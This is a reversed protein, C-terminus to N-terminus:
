LQERGHNIEAVAKLYLEDNLPLYHWEMKDQMFSVGRGKVTHAYIIGVGFEPSECAAEIEYFNHGDIERVDVGFGRIRNALDGMGAVDSTRGFGQLNNGDIIVTLNLNHRIAFVLAEWTSGEQWEGDSTLCFVREGSGNLKAGLAMGNALSFGHGL